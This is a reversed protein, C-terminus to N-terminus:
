SHAHWATPPRLAALAAIGAGLGLVGLVGLVGLASAASLEGFLNALAPAVGSAVLFEGIEMAVRLLVGQVAELALGALVRLSVDPRSAVWMWGLVATVAVMAAAGAAMWTSPVLWAPIGARGGAASPLSVHDMVRDVFGPSPRREPMRAVAAYFGRLWQVEHRCEGCSGLHQREEDSAPGDEAIRELVEPGPHDRDHARETMM